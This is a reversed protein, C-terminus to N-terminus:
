GGSSECIPVPQNGNRQVDSCSSRGHHRRLVTIRGATYILQRGEYYGFILADFNKASLTYGGIM